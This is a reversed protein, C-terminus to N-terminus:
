EQRGKMYHHANGIALVGVTPSLLRTMQTTSTTRAFLATAQPVSLGGFVKSYRRSQHAGYEASVIRREALPILPSKRKGISGQQEHEREEFSCLIPLLFTEM